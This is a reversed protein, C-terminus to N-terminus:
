TMLSNIRFFSSMSKHSLLFDKVDFRLDVAPFHFNVSPHWYLVNITTSPWIKFHNPVSLIVYVRVVGKISGMGKNYTLPCPEKVLDYKPLMITQKWHYSKDFLWIQRFRCIESLITLQSKIGRINKPM